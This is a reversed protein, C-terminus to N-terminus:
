RNSSQRASLVRLAHDFDNCASGHSVADFLPLLASGVFYSGPQSMDQMDRSRASQFASSYTRKNNSITSLASEFAASQACVQLNDGLSAPSSLRCLPTTCHSIRSGVDDDDDDDDDEDNGHDDGDFIRGDLSNQIQLPQM